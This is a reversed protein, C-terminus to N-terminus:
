RFDIKGKVMPFFDSLPGTSNFTKLRFKPKAKKLSIHSSIKKQM